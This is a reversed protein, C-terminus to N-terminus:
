FIYGAYMISMKKNRNAALQRSQVPHSSGISLCCAASLFKSLQEGLAIHSDNVISIKCRAMNVNSLSSLTGIIARSLMKSEGLQGM